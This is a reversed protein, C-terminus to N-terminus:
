VHARGIENGWGARGGDGGAGALGEAETLAGEGRQLEDHGGVALGGVDDGVTEGANKDEVEGAASGDGDAKRAGGPRQLGREAGISRQEVDGGGVALDM